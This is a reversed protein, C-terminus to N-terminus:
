VRGVQTGPLLIRLPRPGVGVDPQKRRQRFQDKIRHWAVRVPLLVPLAIRHPRREPVPPACLDPPPKPQKKSEVGLGPDDDKSPDIIFVGQSGRAALTIRVRHKLAHELSTMWGIIPGCQHCRTPSVPQLPACRRQMAGGAPALARATGQFAPGDGIVEVGIVMVAGVAFGPAAGQRCSPLAPSQMSRERRWGRPSRWGVVWRWRRCCCARPPPTFRSGPAPGGKARPACPRPFSSRGSHSREAARGCVLAPPPPAGPHVAAPHGLRAAKRGREGRQGSSRTTRFRGSASSPLAPLRARRPARMRQYLRTRRRM